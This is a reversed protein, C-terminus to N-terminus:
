DGAIVRAMFFRAGPMQVAATETATLAASENPFLAFVAGGSGSMATAVAGLNQLKAKIEAIQPYRAAAVSELDNVLLAATLSSAELPMPLTAPGPGSWQRRELFRYIEATLVAVPPVGITMHLRCEGDLYTIQEGVGGVRAPRPDLFFPVDAGLRLALAALAAQEIGHLRAMLRLVGGADSSGGGLGAGAPIEKHLDIKVRWRLNRTELFLRAARVALNDDDLPIEPWNCRISVASSEAESSEIVIRDFLSIPLFLSDLEHYGDPRHGTIRLFLNIKAPTLLELRKTM